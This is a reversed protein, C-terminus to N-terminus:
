WCLLLGGGGHRGTHAHQLAALRHLHEYSHNSHCLRAAQTGPHLYGAPQLDGASSPTRDHLPAPVSPRPCCPCHCIRHQFQFRIPQNHKARPNRNTTPKLRSGAPTRQSASCNSLAIRKGHDAGQNTRIATPAISTWSSAIHNTRCTAITVCSGPGTDQNTRPSTSTATNTGSNQQSRRSSFTGSLM